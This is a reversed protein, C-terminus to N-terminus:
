ARLARPWSTVGELIREEGHDQVLRSLLAATAEADSLARHAATFPIGFYRCLSGLNYHPLQPVLRRALRETCLTPRDFVLGTRAFEHELATMDFRVNHAVVIRDQTLTGLTRVVETFSPAEHLMSNDIGTLKRIFNPIPTRPDVLSDWRMREQMGDLAVVAVEMVRGEKPNGSTTEVDLVAFRMREMAGEYASPLRPTGVISLPFRPAAINASPRLSHM